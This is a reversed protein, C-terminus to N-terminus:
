SVTEDLAGAEAESEPLADPGFRRQTEARVYREIEEGTTLRMAGELLVQAEQRSAKRM